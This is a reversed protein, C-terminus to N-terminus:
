AYELVEAFSVEFELAPDDALVIALKSKPLLDSLLELDIPEGSEEMTSLAERLATEEDLIM